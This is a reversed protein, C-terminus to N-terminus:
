LSTRQRKSSHDDSNDEAIIGLYRVLGRSTFLSKYGNENAFLHDELNWGHNEHKSKKKYEDMFWKHDQAVKLTLGKESGFIPGFMVTRGLPLYGVSIHPSLLKHSAFDVATSKNSNAIGQLISSNISTAVGHDFCNM